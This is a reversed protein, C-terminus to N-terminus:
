TAGIADKRLEITRGMATAATAMTSNSPRTL